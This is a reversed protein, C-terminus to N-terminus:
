EGLVAREYGGALWGVLADYSGIAGGIGLMAAVAGDGSEAFGSFGNMQAFVEVLHADMRGACARWAAPDVKRLASMAYRLAWLNASDAAAGGARSCATWAAINARGEDAIGKLHMLEHCGTFVLAAPSASGDVIAEATWPSYLGAVGLADMWEPFRAAKVAGEPVATGDLCSAAREAERLAGEVDPFALASANLRDILAECLAAVQEATAAHAHPGVAFYAPYWLLAYALVVALASATLRKAFRALPALGRARLCRVPLAAAGWLAWAACVLAFAELLPFPAKASVRSLLASLPRIVGRTWLAAFGPVFRCSLVILAAPLAWAIWRPVRPRIRRSM